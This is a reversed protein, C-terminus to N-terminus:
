ERHRLEIWEFVDILASTGAEVDYTVWLNTRGALDRLEEREEQSILPSPEDGGVADFLDFEFGDGPGYANREALISVYSLLLQGLTAHDNRM